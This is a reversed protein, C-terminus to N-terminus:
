SQGKEADYAPLECHLPENAPSSDGAEPLLLRRFVAPRLASDAEASKKFEPPSKLGRRYSGRVM